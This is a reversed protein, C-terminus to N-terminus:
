KMKTFLFNYNLPESFDKIEMEIKLKEEKKNKKKIKLQELENNNKIDEDNIELIKGKSSCVKYFNFNLNM